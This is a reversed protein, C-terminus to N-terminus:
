VRTEGKSYLWCNVARGDLTTTPPYKSRCIDMASDCRPYFPCCEPLDIVNPPQGEISHLRETSARDIRPVSKILGKTYPHQPDAFLDDAGAEEV